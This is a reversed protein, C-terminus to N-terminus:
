SEGGTHAPNPVPMQAGVRRQWAHLKERLERTKEPMAASLDHQEGLDDRLNYLEAREDEYFEVLKWDGARVAAGPRWCAGHYHPYHWFLAEREPSPGGGLLSAFSMGDRPEDDPLAIGSLELLTPYFDASAVPVDCVSGAATRGPVRIIQPVRIGGEYCFGKGARLPGSSTPADYGGDTTLGGNDSTFIVITNDALGLTDLADLLRGVNEDMARVMSAYDPRDQRMRTTGGPVELFVPGEPEPLAAAKETFHALHRTCAQIPTHVTYFSLYLLFPDDKASELFRISEDTLRDTLYEGEPGDSLKPNKYPSYYGGPPQGKECGGLNIEFGQDEPYFGAGGLHWKGAFFTRYGAARLVEALTVEELPLEHRDQPGLLKRDKPDDGPIWDTINLRAPHKGTMIAARTPSCVPCSAYADTFRMGSAAFRDLRPTEHFTSGYCSLDYWGLDDVLIFVVNPRRPKAAAPAAGACALALAGLGCQRLFERRHIM